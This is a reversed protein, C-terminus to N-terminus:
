GRSVDFRDYARSLAPVMLLAILVLALWAVVAFALWSRQTANLVLMGAAAALGCGSVLLTTKVAFDVLTRGLFDFDIRGVPVLPTPFLLFLTNELGYLLVNFPVVFPALCIVLTRPVGELFVAASVLLLLEVLSTLLVPALLQGTAIKWPRLPLAKFNEMSDLDSRFDFVLTRPLVYVAIFFVFGVRSWLTIDAAAVVLLPGALLALALFVLVAKSYSRLATLLQRWAIPGIGGFPPPQGFSRVVVPQAGWLLGSRRARVWRKHLKLSAAISAECSDRDLLIIFALLGINIALGLTAWGLLDPYLSDALFIEVFVTFPALLLTGVYSSQFLALADALGNDIGSFYWALVVIVAVLVSIVHSRRLPVTCYGALLQGLLGIVASCLQIFM